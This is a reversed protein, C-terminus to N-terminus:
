IILYPPTLTMWILSVRLTDAGLSLSRIAERNATLQEGLTKVKELVEDEPEM